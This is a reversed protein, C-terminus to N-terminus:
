RRTNVGANFSGEELVVAVAVGGEAVLLVAELPAAAM